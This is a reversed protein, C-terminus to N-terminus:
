LVFQHPRQGPTFTNTMQFSALRSSLFGQAEIWVGARLVESSVCMDKVQWSRQPRSKNYINM